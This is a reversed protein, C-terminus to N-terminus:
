IPGLDPLFRLFFIQIKILSSFSTALTISESQHLIATASKSCEESAISEKDLKGLLWLQHRRLNVAKVCAIM